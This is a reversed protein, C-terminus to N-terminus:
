QEQGKFAFQKQNKKSIPILFADALDIVVYSMGHAISIWELLAIVDLVWAVVPIVVQNIKCYDVTDGYGM